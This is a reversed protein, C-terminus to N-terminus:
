YCLQSYVCVCVCYNMYDIASLSSSVVSATRPLFPTASFQTTQLNKTIATSVVTCEGRQIDFVHTDNTYKDATKGGVVVLKDGLAVMRSGKKPPPADQPNTVQVKRWEWEGVTICYLDNSSPRGSGRRVGGWHFITKGVVACSSYVVCEPGDGTTTVKRYEGNFVYVTRLNSTSDGGWSYTVGEIVVSCHGHRPPPQYTNSSTAM